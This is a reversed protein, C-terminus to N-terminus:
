KDNAGMFDLFDNYDIEGDKNADAKEILDMIIKDKSELRLLGKIEEKSIKGKKNKDLMSFAEYLKEKQLYNKKNLTAAIFETYDIKGSKDTDISNFYEVIKDETMNVNPLQKLGEKFEELSIQGDNDKDFAKFAEKLDNIEKDGIRSAIFMLVMKKLQNAKNYEKIFSADFKLDKLQKDQIDVKKFWPDALVQSASYREEEPAIMHKILEKVENSLKDFHSSFKFKKTRIKAYIERDDQGNFPPVASLLIYLLVGASWVDCKETYHGDLIEPPVYYATGVKSQIDPKIIQSLGFDIVKVPNKIEDIKNMKKTKKGEKLGSDLEKKNLFLVNEAKLDRHCIKKQHCYEIASMIQRMIIAVEKETYMHNSELRVMLDDFLEGGDCKEMVLYIHNQTEYIEYLKIINPHDITKLVNVERKFRELDEPSIKKKSLQKIARIDGSKKNKAAVVKGFGGEGLEKIIEYTDGISGEFKTVFIEKGFKIDTM